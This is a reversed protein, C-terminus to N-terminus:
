GQGMVALFGGAYAARIGNFSDELVMCEEPDEGLTGAALLFIAPNPKAEEVMDGYIYHDFYGEVGQGDKSVGKITNDDVLLGFWHDLQYTIPFESHIIDFEVAELRVKRGELEGKLFEQIMYSSEGEVKDTFVIRGALTQGKQKLYLEGEAVGYGYNEIYRWKGTLDM